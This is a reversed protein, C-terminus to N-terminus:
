QKLTIHMSNVHKYQVKIKYPSNITAIETQIPEEDDQLACWPNKHVLIYKVNCEILVNFKLLCIVDNITTAFMCSVDRSHYLSRMQAMLWGVNGMWGMGM